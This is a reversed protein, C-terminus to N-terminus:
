VFLRQTHRHDNVYTIIDEPDTNKLDDHLNRLLQLIILGESVELKDRLELLRILLAPAMIDASICHRNSKLHDCGGGTPGNKNICRLALRTDYRGSVLQVEQRTPLWTKAWPIKWISNWHGTFAKLQKETQVAKRDTMFSEILNTDYDIYLPLGRIARLTNRSSQSLESLIM